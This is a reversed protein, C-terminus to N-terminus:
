RNESRFGKKLLKRFVVNQQHCFILNFHRFIKRVFAVKSFYSIKTSFQKSEFINIKNLYFYILLIYESYIHSSKWEVSKKNYQIKWSDYIIVLLCKSWPRYFGIPNQLKRTTPFNEWSRPRELQLKLSCAHRCTATCWRFIWFPHDPRKESISKWPRKFDLLLTQCDWDSLGIRVKIISIPPGGM